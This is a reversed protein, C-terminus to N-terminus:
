IRKAKIVSRANAIVMSLDEFLFHGRAPIGDSFQNVEYSQVPGRDTYGGHMSSEGIMYSEGAELVKLQEQRFGDTVFTLGLMDGLEGTTVIEYKTMPDFWASFQTNGTIDNWFDAAMLYYVPVINFRTLDTRLETLSTPNLGGSLYKLQHDIGVTNDALLKWHRDETTMIAEQAELFKEELIDQSGQNMDRNTVRINASVIFEPPFLESDRVYQPHIMSASAMMVASVNKKRVRIRPFNGQELPNKELFRRMFGERDASETIQGAITSGLAAWKGSTRDNYAAVLLERRQKAAMAKTPVNDPQADSMDLTGNAAMTMLHGVTRFLDKKDYGSLHGDRGVISDRTGPIRAEKGPTPPAGNGGRFTFSRKM